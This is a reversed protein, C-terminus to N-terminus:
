SPMFNFSVGIDRTLQNSSGPFKPSVPILSINCHYSALQQNIGPIFGGRQTDMILRKCSRHRLTRRQRPGFELADTGLWWLPTKSWQIYKLICWRKSSKPWMNAVATNNSCTLTCWTLIRHVDVHMCRKIGRRFSPLPFIHPIKNPKFNM